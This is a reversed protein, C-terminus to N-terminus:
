VVRQSTKWWSMQGTFNRDSALFLCVCWLATRHRSLSFHSFFSAPPVPSPAFMSFPADNCHCEAIQGRHQTLLADALRPWINLTNQSPPFCNPQWPSTPTYIPASYNASSTHCAPVLYVYLKHQNCFNAPTFKQLECMLRREDVWLCKM